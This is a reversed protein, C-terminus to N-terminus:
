VTMSRYISLVLSDRNIKVTIIVFACMRANKLFQGFCIKFLCGTVTFIGIAAFRCIQDPVEASTRIGSNMKKYASSVCVEDYDGGSETGILSHETSIGAMDMNVFGSSHFGRAM